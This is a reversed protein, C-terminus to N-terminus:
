PSLARRRFRPPARSAFSNRKRSSSPNRPFWSAFGGRLGGSVRRLFRVCGLLAPSVAIFGFGANPNLTARVSKGAGTRLRAGKSQRCIEFRFGSEFHVAPFKSFNCESAAFCRWGCLWVGSSRLLSLTFLRRHLSASGASLPDGIVLGALASCISLLARAPRLIKM